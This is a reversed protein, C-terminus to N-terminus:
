SSLDTLNKWMNQKTSLTVYLLAKHLGSSTQQHPLKQGSICTTLHMEVKIFMAFQVMFDLRLGGKKAVPNANSNTEKMKLVPIPSGNKVRQFVAKPPCRIVKITTTAIFTRASAGLELEVPLNLM